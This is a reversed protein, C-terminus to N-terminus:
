MIPGHGTNRTRTQKNQLSSRGFIARLMKMAFTSPVPAQTSNPVIEYNQTTMQGAGSAIPTQVPTFSAIPPQAPQAPAPTPPHNVPGYQEPGREVDMIDPINYGEVVAGNPTEITWDNTLTNPRYRVLQDDRYDEIIEVLASYNEGDADFEELANAVTGPSSPISSALADDLRRRKGGERIGFVTTPAGPGMDIDTDATMDVEMDPPPLRAILAADDHLDRWDDAMREYSRVQDSYRHGPPLRYMNQFNEPIDGYAVAFRNRRAELLRSRARGRQANTRVRERVSPDLTGGRPVPSQEYVPDIDM